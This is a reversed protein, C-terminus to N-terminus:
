TSSVGESQALETLTALVDCGVFIFRDVGAERYAAERAGPNGALFLCAVGAQKLAAAVALVGAEYWVDSSCIVALRCSAKVCAAAAAAATEFGDNTVTEFGGAEFFNQAYTARATHVAVPGMNALFIRPRQGTNGLVADSADRLREFDASFRRLPMPEISEANRGLANEMQLRTAGATFAQTAAEFRAAATSDVLKAIPDLINTDVARKSRTQEIAREVADTVAAPREVAPENLFPYESVGTIPTKRRALDEHRQEWVADIARKFSGSRLAALMGGEAEVSQFAAWARNALERTLSEVYFSGGAPDIVRGLHAEESLIIQTNKAIRRAFDDSPGIVDDFPLVTIADAGGVAAAFCGITTRLLNVWPDRKTLVRRSTRAHLRVGRREVDVGTLEEVRHWLARLARFKSIELFQDCGVSLSFQIQPSAQALPLGATECARLYEVGTALAAALEQVATAGANDYAATLVQLATVHSSKEVAVCALEAAQELLVDASRYGVGKAAMAGLPDANFAIQRREWDIGRRDFLATVLSAASYFAPGGTIALPTTGLDVDRFLVELQEISDVLVGGGCGCGTMDSEDLLRPSLRVVVSTAGHSLDQRLAVNAVAPDPHRHEQVIQWGNQSCGLPSGGRILPPQGPLGSQIPDSTGASYLPLVNIGEILKTVLRKEFPAGKLDAEALRQWSERNQAPFEELLTVKDSMATAAPRGLERAMTWNDLHTKKRDSHGPRRMSQLAYAQACVRRACRCPAGDDIGIRKIRTARRPTVDKVTDLFAHNRLDVMQTNGHRRQVLGHGNPFAYEPQFALADFRHGALLNARSEEVDGTNMDFEQLRGGLIAGDGFRNRRAALTHMMHRKRRVINCVLQILSFLGASPQDVFRGHRASAALEDREHVGFAHTAYQRFETRIGFM